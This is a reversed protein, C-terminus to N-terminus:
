DGVPNPDHGAQKEAHRGSADGSDGAEWKQLIAEVAARAGEADGQRWRELAASGWIDAFAQRREGAPIGASRLRRRAEVMQEVFPGYAPDVVQELLLRFARALWPSGGATSVAVTLRGRRFSSPVAVNGLEPRDAVNVWSGAARAEAAVRENVSPDGSAAFVLRYNRAEGARYRRAEWRCAGERVRRELEPVVEPSVVTVDAGAGLLGEVKRAGVRGGGVVLVAVGQLNLFLPYECREAYDGSM